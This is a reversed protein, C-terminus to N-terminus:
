PNAVAVTVRLGESLAYGGSTIVVAGPAVGTAIQTRAGDHIGLTVITRHALSDAGAVFVYHAGSAADEFLAADPVTIAGPLDTTVVAVEVPVGAQAVRDSGTFEIRIPITLGGPSLSPSAANVRAAIEVGPKLPSTVVASMGPRIQSLEDIPAAAEIYISGPDILDTIPDLDAVMQGSSVIRQAVVADEPAIVTIGAPPANRRLSASLAAADDPDLRRAVALGNEAAEIERNIIRAVIQGRRVVDGSQLTLGEIRGAAPARLTLHRQAVTTGLLHITSRMPAVTVRAGSVAMVIASAPPTADEDSDSSAGRHGCGFLTLLLMGALASQLGGRARIM